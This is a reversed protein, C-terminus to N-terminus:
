KLGMKEILADSNPEAGRFKVYLKMADESNGKSLVNNRFSQAVERNFIGEEKFKHFADAELVEAWKYSYYGASYGGAFIHSFSPSFCVESSYPFIQTPEAAMKEFEAVSLQTPVTLMHWNMDIIGFSLQRVAGYSVLFNRSDVIKQILEMPISEGSEYHKAWLNLFEPETAWNEMIQSPLEVFDWAVNTGSISSYKGDAFMGHLAHGMEHLLTTVEDFTLLSPTSSTPKTFNCVVSVIPKVGMKQERYSTMWAGGNKSSRPFFDLYLLSIFDGNEDYVEFSEVDKHYLPVDFTEVFKVGYLRNCLMFVADKVASLEFYPKLMESSLSFKEQKYKESYYSFDYPQMQAEGYNDSKKAYDFIEKVEKKAYDLVHANMGYLFDTVTKASKAMREELVYDAHSSYGLLKARELRLDVIKKIIESNSFEGSLARSGYALWMKKRLEGNASYKMFSVYSPGHLTYVWGEKEQEKATEAGMEVVFDPLGVLDVSDTLRLTWDNTAALLNQDFMLTLNSLEKSVERYREKEDGKLDAGGRSFGKYTIQTLRLDEGELGLIERSDYVSKVREFLKENLYIDNSYETLLPTVALAIQQMTDSTNCSNQNFFITSINSLLEGSNELALITNDFTPADKSNIITEIEERGREVAVKFAPEYDELSIKDFEPAGYKAKSPELLPNTQNSSCGIMTLTTLFIFLLRKM